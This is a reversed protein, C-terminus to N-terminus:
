KGERFFWFVQSTVEWVDAEWDYITLNQHDGGWDPIFAVEMSPDGDLNDVLVIGDVRERPNFPTVLFTEDFFDYISLNLIWEDPNSQYKFFVEGIGDRDVDAVSPASGSQYITYTFVGTEQDFFSLNGELGLEEDWGASYVLEDFVDGDVDGFSFVNFDIEGHFFPVVFGADFGTFSPWYVWEGGTERLRSFHFGDYTLDLEQEFGSIGYFSNELDEFLPSRSVELDFSSGEVVGDWSLLPQKDEITVGNDTGYVITVNGRLPEPPLTPRIRPPCQDECTHYERAFCFSDDGDSFFGYGMGCCEEGSTDHVSAEALETSYGVCSGKGYEFLDDWWYCGAGLCQDKQDDFLRCCFDKKIWLPSQGPSLAAIRAATRAAIV